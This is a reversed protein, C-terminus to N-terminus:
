DDFSSAALGLYTSFFVGSGYKRKEAFSVPPLTYTTLIAKVGDKDGADAISAFFMVSNRLRAYSSASFSSSEELLELSVLARDTFSGLRKGNILARVQELAMAAEIDEKDEIRAKMRTLIQLMIKKREEKWNTAAQQTINRANEILENFAEDNFEPINLTSLLLQIETIAALEQRVSEELVSYVRNIRGATVIAASLESPLYARLFQTLSDMQGREMALCDTGSLGLNQCAQSEIAEASLRLNRGHQKFEKSWQDLENALEVYAKFEKKIEDSSQKAIACHSLNPLNERNTNNLADLKLFFDSFWNIQDRLSDPADLSLFDLRNREGNSEYEFLQLFHIPKDSNLFDNVKQSNFLKLSRKAEKYLSRYVLVELDLELESEWYSSSSFLNDLRIHDIRKATNPFYCKFNTNNKLRREFISVLNTNARNVIFESFGDIIDNSTAAMLNQCFLMLLTIKLAYKVSTKM